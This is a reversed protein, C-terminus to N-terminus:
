AEENDSNNKHWNDIAAQVAALARERPGKTKGQVPIAKPPEFSWAWLDPTTTQLIRFEIGKYKM